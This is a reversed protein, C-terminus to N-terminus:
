WGNSTIITEEHKWSSDFNFDGVLISLNKRDEQAKQLLNFTVEMQEKRYKASDLSEFHATAVLFNVPLSPEAVILSRGMLSDFQREFFTCPYKSIIMCGYFAEKFENGSAFSYNEQIWSNELIMQRSENTVEQLCIFDPDQEEIVKM